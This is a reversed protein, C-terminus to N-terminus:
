SSSAEGTVTPLPEPRGCLLCTRVGRAPIDRWEHDCRGVRGTGNCHWCPDGDYLARATEDYAEQPLPGRRDSHGAGPAASEGM